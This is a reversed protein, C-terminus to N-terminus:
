MSSAFYSLPYSPSSLLPLFFALSLSCCRPYSLVEMDLTFYLKPLNTRPQFDHERLFFAPNLCQALLSTLYLLLSKIDKTESGDLLSLTREFM